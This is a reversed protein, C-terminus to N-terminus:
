ENWDRLVAGFGAAGVCFAILFGIGSLTLAGNIAAGVALPKLWGDDSGVLREGVALYAIASGVAWLLYAVIVLPIAVFVGIITIVLVITALVLFVVSALGYVLSGVPEDLLETKLRETYDPLIAIMVAGVALTTLFAAVASGVLTTLPGIGAGELWVDVNVALTVGLTQM